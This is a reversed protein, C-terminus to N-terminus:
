VYMERIRERISDDPLQNQKGTLIIRVTKIENQRALIYAFLPGVSFPNQKQPRIADIVRNDCWREFAQDSERAAEAAERYDTQELYEAVADTGSQTARVLLDLNLGQCPALARQLFEMSKGTRAGRFAIRIDATAVLSRAYSRVVAERSEEGARYVATLAARDVIVDCLQGDRHHVMVEYAEQAADRMYDPLAQFDKERVIRTMEQGGIECDEYFIRRGEHGTCVMKVAAKLNHFLKQYSLVQFPKMDVNLGQITEWTRKEERQLMAEADASYESGGWGREALFQLSQEYTKCSMLQEIVTESFLFNELSRIRAVAYTYKTDSM